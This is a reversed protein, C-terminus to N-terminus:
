LIQGATYFRVGGAGLTCANGLLRVRGAQIYGGNITTPVSHSDNPGRLSDSTVIVGGTNHIVYAGANLTGNGGPAHRKRWTRRRKRRHLTHGRYEM